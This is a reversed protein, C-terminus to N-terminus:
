GCMDGIYEELMNDVVRRFKNSMNRNNAVENNYASAFKVLLKEDLLQYESKSYSAPPVWRPAKMGHSEAANQQMVHWGNLFHYTAGLKATESLKKFEKDYKQKWLVASENVELFQPNNNLTMMTMLDYFGDGMRQAYQEGKKIESKAWKANPTDVIGSKKDKNVASKLMSDVISKTNVYDVAKDHANRHVNYHIKIPSDVTGTMNYRNMWALYQAYSAIAVDEIPTTAVDEKFNVTIDESAIDGSYKIYNDRDQTYEYYKQSEALTRTMNYRGYQFDMGSAIRNPKKLFAIFKKLRSYHAESITEGAQPHGPGYKFLSRQLGDQTYNWQKLLMFKANDVAAQLYIRLIKSVSFKEIKGDIKGVNFSVKEDPQKIVVPGVGEITISDVTNVLIGYLASVNAIEGVKISTLSEIMRLRDEANSLVFKQVNNDFDGLNIGEVKLTNFFNLFTSEIDSVFEGNEYTYPLMEMTLSDGDFDGEFRAFVDYPNLEVIGERQTLRKVRLMAAGGAHPIPSRASFMYVPNESLWENIFKLKTEKAERLSIGEVTAFKLLVEEANAKSLAAEGRGLDGRLNPALDVKTGRQNKFKLAPKMLQTQYLVSIMPELQWIFGLKNLEVLTNRFGLADNSDIKKLTKGIKEAAMKYNTDSFDRYIETLDDNLKSLMIDKFAQIVTPDTIYNYWQMLHTGKKVVVEDSYKTFGVNQGSVEIMSDGDLGSIWKAEDRTVIMDMGAAKGESFNGKADVKAILVDGEWIEVFPEPQYHQHKIAIGEGDENKYFVTKAKAQNPNLGHHKEYNNFLQRATISGGDGVYVSGVRNYFRLADNTKGRYKFVLKEKDVIYININPMSQSITMPTFPLKFRKAVVDSDLSLYDPFVQKLAEHVAINAAIDGKMMNRVHSNDPIFGDDLEKDFYVKPSKAYDKHVRDIKVIALKDSDGRSLAITHGSLRLEKNLMILEDYTFFNYSENLGTKNVEIEKGTRDQKFTKVKYGDNDRILSPELFDKGNIWSFLLKKNNMEFPTIKDTSNNKAGRYTDSDPGKLKVEMSTVVRGIYVKDEFIPKTKAIVVFNNRENFKGKETNITLTSFLRNFKKLTRRRQKDTLGGWTKRARKLGKKYWTEFKINKDINDDKLIDYAWQNIKLAVEPEVHVGWENLYAYDTSSMEKEDTSGEELLDKFGERADIENLFEKISSKTDKQPLMSELDKGKAEDKYKLDSYDSFMSDYWRIFRDKLELPISGLMAVRYYEPNVVTKFGRKQKEILNIDLWANQFIQNIAANNSLRPDEVKQYMIQKKVKQVLAKEDGPVTRDDIERDLVKQFRSTKFSLLGKKNKIKIKIFQAKTMEPVTFSYDIFGAQKLQNLIKKASKTFDTDSGKVNWDDRTLEPSIEYMPDKLKEPLEFIFADNVFKGNEKKYMYDRIKELILDQTTRGNGKYYDVAIKRGDYGSAREGKDLAEYLTTKMHEVLTDYENRDLNEWDTMDIVNVFQNVFSTIVQKKDFSGLNKTKRLVGTILNNWASEETSHYLFFSSHYGGSSQSFSNAIGLAILLPKDSGDAENAAMMQISHLIRMPNFTKRISHLQRMTKLIDSGTTVKVREEFEFSSVEGKKASKLFKTNDTKNFKNISKNFHNFFENVAIARRSIEIMYKKMYYQYQSDIAGSKFLDVIYNFRRSQKKVDRAVKREYKIKDIAERKPGWIWRLKNDTNNMLSEIKKNMLFKSKWDMLKVGSIFEEGVGLSHIFERIVQNHSEINYPPYEHKTNYRKFKEKSQDYVLSAWNASKKEDKKWDKFDTYNLRDEIAKAVLEARLANIKLIEKGERDLRVKEKEIAKSVEDNLGLLFKYFEKPAKGLMFDDQMKNVIEATMLNSQEDPKLYHSIQSENEHRYVVNSEIKFTGGYNNDSLMAAISGWAKEKSLGKKILDRYEMSIGWLMIDHQASLNIDEMKVNVMRLFEKFDSRMMDAPGGDMNFQNLKDIFAPSLNKWKKTDKIIPKFHKWLIDVFNDSFNINVKKLNEPLSMLPSIDGDYKLNKLVDPALGSLKRNVFVMSISKDNIATTTSSANNKIYEDPNNLYEEVEQRIINDTKGFVDSQFELAVQNGVDPIVQVRYWGVANTPTATQVNEGFSEKHDHLGTYGKGAFFYVRRSPTLTTPIKEVDELAYKISVYDTHEPTLAIHVAYNTNIFDEYASVVADSSMSSNDDLNHTKKYERLFQNTIKLESKPFPNRKANLIDRMKSITITGQGKIKNVFALKFQIQNMQYEVLNKIKIAEKFDVVSESKSGLEPIKLGLDMLDVPLLKKQLQNLHLNLSPLLIDFSKDEGTFLSEINKKEVELYKSMKRAGWLSKPINLKENLRNYVKRPLDNLQRQLSTLSKGKKVAKRIDTIISSLEKDLLEMYSPVIINNLIHYEPSDFEQNNEEVTVTDFDGKEIGSISDHADAVDLEDLIVRKSEDVLFDSLDKLTVGDKIFDYISLYAPSDKTAFLNKIANWFRKLAQILPHYIAKEKQQKSIKAAQGLATVIVEEKFADSGEDFDGEAVYRRMIMAYLKKGVDTAIIDKYIGNIVEAGGEAQNIARVFPHGFEHFATDKKLYKPNLYITNTETSWWGGVGKKDPDDQQSEPVIIVKFIQKGNKDVFKSQLYDAIRTAFKVRDERILDIGSKVKSKDKEIVDAIIDAVKQKSIKGKPPIKIKRRKLEARIGTIEFQIGPMERLEQLKQLLQEDSAKKLDKIVIPKKDEKVEPAKKEEKKQFSEKIKKTLRPIPIKRAKLEIRLNPIEFSVGKKAREELYKQKLDEDSYDKYDESIGVEAPEESIIIREEGEPTEAFDDREVVDDDMEVIDDRVEVDPAETVTTDEKAGISQATDSQTPIELLNDIEQVQEPFLEDWGKRNMSNMLDKKSIGADKLVDWGDKKIIELTKNPNSLDKKKIDEDINEWADIEDTNTINSHAAAIFLARDNIKTINGKDDKEIINKADETVKRKESQKTVQAIFNTESTDYSVASTADDFKVSNLLNGNEAIIDVVYKKGVKKIDTKANVWDKFVEPQAESLVQAKFNRNFQQVAQYAESFSSYEHPNVEDSIQIDDRGEEIVNNDDDRILKGDKDRKFTPSSMFVGHKGNDLKKTYTQFFDFKGKSVQWNEFRSKMGTGSYTGSVAAGGIGLSAGGWFGELAEDWSFTDIFGEKKYAQPGITQAGTQLITQIFEESGQVFSNYTHKKLFNGHLQGWRFIKNGGGLRRTNESTRHLINNGINRSFWKKGGSGFTDLWTDWAFKEVFYTLATSWYIAGTANVAADAPHIGQQYRRGNEVIFNNKEYDKLLIDRELVSKDEDKLDREYNGILRNYEIETIERPQTQYDIAEQTASTLEQYTIPAMSITRLTSQYSALPKKTLAMVGLGAAYTIMGPLMSEIANWSSATLLKLGLPTWPRADETFDTQEQWRQLAMYKPNTEIFENWKVEEDSRLQKQVDLWSMRTHTKNWRHYPLSGIFEERDKAKTKKGGIAMDVFAIENVEILGEVLDANLTKGGTESNEFLEKIRDTSLKWNVYEDYGPAGPAPSIKGLNIATKEQNKVSNLADSLTYTNEKNNYFDRVEQPGMGFTAKNNTEPILWNRGRDPLMEMIGIEGLQGREVAEPSRLVEPLVPMTLIKMPEIGFINITSIDDVLKILDPVFSAKAKHISAKGREAIIELITPENMIGDWGGQEEFMNPYDDQFNQVLARDDTNDFQGPHINRLLEALEKPTLGDPNLAM